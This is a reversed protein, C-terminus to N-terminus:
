ADLSSEATGLKRAIDIVTRRMLPNTLKIMAEVIDVGDKTAMFEEFRSGQAKPKGNGMIDGVFYAIDTELAQAIEVLRVTGVRNRGKEYKQIQQFSVGLKQGLESQSMGREMRRGRIRQGLVQDTPGVGRATYQKSKAKRRQKM